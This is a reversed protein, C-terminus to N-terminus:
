GSGDDPLALQLHGDASVRVEATSLPRTAPLARIEGTAVAFRAGHSCCEIEDGDLEGVEALPDGTHTCHGALAYYQGAVNVVIWDQGDARVHAIHGRPVESAHPGPHWHLETAPTTTM